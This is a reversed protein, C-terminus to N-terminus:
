PRFGTDKEAGAGADPESSIPAPAESSAGQFVIRMQESLRAVRNRDDPFKKSWTEIIKATKAPKILTLLRINDRDEFKRMLNIVEDIKMKSFLDAQTQFGTTETEAIKVLRDEIQKQMAELRKREADLRDREGKLLSERRVLSEDIEMLNSQKDQLESQFQSLEKATKELVEPQEAIIPKELVPPDPPPPPPLPKLEALKPTIASNWALFGGGGMGLLLAIIPIIYILPPKM